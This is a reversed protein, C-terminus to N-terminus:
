DVAKFVRAWQIKLKGEGGKENRPLWSQALYFMAEQPLRNPLRLIELNNVYWILENKTWRFTYVYYMSRLMGTLDAMQTKKGNVLGLQHHDGNYHYLAIMPSNVKGTTIGFFHHGTGQSRVKAMFMGNEQAFAAKTNMVDSTYEFVEEVFGKKEDWAVAKKSEARTELDMRGDVFFTNKGGVYAQRESTRSHGDKMAPNAYGFGAKWNAGSEMHDEFSPRFLEAWDIKESRQEFYFKIDDSNALENYRQEVKYEESHQWRKTDAWLAHRKQFDETKVEQELAELQRLEVSNQVKLYNKFYSSHYLMNYRRIVSSRLCEKVSKVKQFEDTDRFALFAQFEEDKLAQQYRRISRSSALDQYSIMKRGEDTDKYKRTRLVNKKEQFDSSEVIKKLRRYEELEPSKEIERWRKVRAQMESITKEFADTSLMKGTLRATFLNM